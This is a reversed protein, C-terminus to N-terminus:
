AVELLESLLRGAEWEAVRLERWFLSIEDPPDSPESQALGLFHHTTPHDDLSRYPRRCRWFRGDRPSTPLTCSYDAMRSFMEFTILLTPEKSPTPIGVSTFPFPQWEHKCFL